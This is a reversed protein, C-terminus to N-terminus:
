RKKEMKLKVRWVNSNRRTTMAKLGAEKLVKNGTLL